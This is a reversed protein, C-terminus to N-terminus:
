KKLIVHLAEQAEEREGGTASSISQDVTDIEVGAAQLDALLTNADKGVLQAVTTLPANNVAEMTARAISKGSGEGEDGVPAFSLLLIAAFTGIIIKTLKNQFRKQFAPFNSYLHAAAGIVMAWGLWEHAPKNLGSELDFFILIGTTASLLFSGAVLPTAWDRLQITM